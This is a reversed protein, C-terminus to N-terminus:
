GYTISVTEEDYVLKIWGGCGPCEVTVSGAKELLTWSVANVTKQCNPCYVQFLVDDNTKAMPRIGQKM